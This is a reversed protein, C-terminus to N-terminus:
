SGSEKWVLGKLPVPQAQRYLLPTAAAEETLFLQPRPTLSISPGTLPWMVAGPPM